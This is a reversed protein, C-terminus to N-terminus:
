APVAAQPLMAAVTDVIATVEAATLGAARPGFAGGLHTAYRSPTQARMEGIWYRQNALTVVLACRARTMSVYLLRAGELVLGPVPTRRPGPLIADELGPIFVVDAQLGKAGHMTMVRVRPTPEEIPPEEALGLRDRVSRRIGLQQDVNDASIFDRLEALTMGDPLEEVLQDWGVAEEENRAQVLLHRLTTGTAGLTDDPSFAALTGCVVQARGLAKMRMGTFLGNPLPEYFLDRYRLNNAVATEVIRACTKAGVGRPCGLVLRLAMYDSESMVVRLLGLMFRGAETDRWADESPPAHPVGRADLEAKIRAFLRRNSLLIMIQDASVGADILSRCSSTIASAELTHRSFRWRHVIGSVSPEATTWLSVLKKQIRTASSFDVILNTAADIISTASRFCSALIHDGADPHRVLFEELGGPSAFRFAYVSQDDDGATFLHVGQQRLRDVFQIDMPNLDQYEDVILHTMEMLQAADLLGAEIRAVCLRVLEGPLVSAYTQTTPGHFASFRAHEVETIPPDPQLYNAPNWQGTSWFADRGERIEECRSPTWGTTAAFEAEFVHEVEWEDLVLPRVPYQTLQNALALITLALSHLTSVRVQDVDVNLEHADCYQVVRRRLDQSAARTFSVGFVRRPDIAVDEYLWRFREEISASKGTGPGAVLRVAPSVDRSATHQRGQAAQIDVARLPM